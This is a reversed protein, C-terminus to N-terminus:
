SGDKLRKRYARMKAALVAKDQRMRYARKKAALVVKDAKKYYAKSTAIAKERNDAYWQKQKVRIAARNKTYNERASQNACSKCYTHHGDKSNTCLHFDALPKRENCKICTKM